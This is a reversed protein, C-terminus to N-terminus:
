QLGKSYYYRNTVSSADLPKNFTAKIVTDIAVGTSGNSPFTNELQPGSKSSSNTQGVVASRRGSEVARQGFYFGIIASVAGGFLTTMNETIEVFSRNVEQVTPSPNQMNNTVTILVHFSLIAIILIIGYALLTRSLGETRIPKGERDQHRYGQVMDYVLPVLLAFLLIGLYIYVTDVSPMFPTVPQSTPVNKITLNVMDPNATKAGKEDVTILSFALPTDETVNPATLTPTPTDRDSLRVLPGSEQSWLYLPITDNELDSSSSGNLVVTDGENVLLDVGADAIPPDNVPDVRISITGNSSNKIGNGVIFTFNDNGNFNPLPVYTSNAFAHTGNRFEADGGIKVITTLNGQLPESLLYFILSRNASVDSGNLVVDVPKDENITVTQNYAIPNLVAKRTENTITLNSAQVQGFAMSMTLCNLGIAM